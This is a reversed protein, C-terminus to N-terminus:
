TVIEAGKALYTKRFTIKQSKIRFFDAFDITINQNKGNTGTFNGYVMVTDDQAYIHNLTHTGTLKRDHHYFQRLSKKGKFNTEAREYLADDKFLNLVTDIDKEDIKQYYLQIIKQNQTM